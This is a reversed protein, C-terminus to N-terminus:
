HLFVRRRLSKSSPILLSKFGTPKGCSLAIKCESFPRAFVNGKHHVFVLLMKPWWWCWRTNEDICISEYERLWFLHCSSSRFEIFFDKFVPGFWGVVDTSQCMCISNSFPVWLIRFIVMSLSSLQRLSWYLFPDGSACPSEVNMILQMDLSVRLVKDVLKKISNQGAVNGVVWLFVLIIIRGFISQIFQTNWFDASVNVAYM